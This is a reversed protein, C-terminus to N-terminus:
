SHRYMTIGVATAWLYLVPLLLTAVDFIVHGESGGGVASLLPYLATIVALVGLGVGAGVVYRSVLETRRLAWGFLAIGTGLIIAYMLLHGAGFPVVITDLIQDGREIERAGRVDVYAWTVWQLGNLVGLGLVGAGLYGALGRRLEPIARLLAVVGFALITIGLAWLAHSLMGLLPAGSPPTEAEIVLIGGVFFPVGALILAAIGLSPVSGNGDAPSAFATTTEEPM